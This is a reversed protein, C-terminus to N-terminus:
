EVISVLRVSEDNPLNRILIERYSGDAMMSVLAAQVAAGMVPRDRATAIGQRAEPLTATSYQIQDRFEYAFSPNGMYAAVDGSLLATVSHSETEFTRLDIPQRGAAACAANLGQGVFDGSGNVLDVHTTGTTASVALGCLDDLSDIERPNGIAVLVPQISETYAAFEVRSLRDTTINQSSISVDCQHRELTDILDDFLPSRTQLELNLRDALEEAFGVNYGLLTGSPDL